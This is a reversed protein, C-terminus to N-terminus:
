KNSRFLADLSYRGPGMLLIVLYASFFLIAKEMRGFPDSWHVMFIAVGMTILLPIVAWRTLLGLMVLISCIVESLVALGLTVAPGLGLPDGFQIPDEGFFRSWKGLGHGFLMSAGFTLRLILLALDTTHASRSISFIKVPKM